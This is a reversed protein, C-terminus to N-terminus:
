FEKYNDKFAKLIIEGVENINGTSQIGYSIADAVRQLLLEEDLEKKAEKSYEKAEAKTIERMVGAEGIFYHESLESIKEANKNIAEIIGDACLALTRCIYRTQNDTDNEIVEEELRDMLLTKEEM